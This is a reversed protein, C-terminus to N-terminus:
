WDPKSQTMSQVVVDILEDTVEAAEGDEGVRVVQVGAGGLENLCLKYLVFTGEGPELNEVMEDLSQGSAASDSDGVMELNDAWTGDM